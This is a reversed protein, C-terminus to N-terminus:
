LVAGFQAGLNEKEEQIDKDKLALNAPFRAIKEAFQSVCCVQKGQVTQSTSSPSEPGEEWAMQRGERWGGGGDGLGAEKRGGHKRLTIYTVKLFGAQM